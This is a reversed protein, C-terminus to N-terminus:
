YYDRQFHTSVHKKNKLNRPLLRLFTKDIKSIKLLSKGKFEKNSSIIQSYDNAIYVLHDISSVKFLQFGIILVSFETYIVSM